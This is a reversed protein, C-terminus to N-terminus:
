AAYAYSISRRASRDAQMRMQAADLLKELTEGDKGIQAHGVSIGLMAEDVSLLSPRCEIVASQIRAAVDAVNEPNANRLMVIFEDGLYHVLTDASRIQSKLMLAIQRITQDARQNEIKDTVQRFISLDALLFTLEYEDAASLQKERGFTERLFRANPLGTLADTMSSNKVEAFLRASKLAESALASVRTLRQIQDDQFKELTRTYIAMAGFVEEGKGLPFVALTNYKELQQSIDKSLGLVYLDLAPDTNAFSKNNALVWGTVGEGPKITCGKFKEAQVGFAYEVVAARDENGLWYFVCTDNEKDFRIVSDMQNAVIEFAQRFDLVGTLNEAIGYLAYSEQSSERSERITKVYAPIAPKDEILGAAPKADRIADTQSVEIPKFVKADEKMRAIQKEFEPLNEIFLDVLAADFAGNRDDQLLKIAQERTMGKRYQRDERVADFCDVVSLLRATLPINEGKLGEPYGKGDWREHHYHVIPVLPYPFQIQNLIQAGVSTHQKMKDFEFATLKGPKNIIYDPVAIKGIDHLLAGAHLAKIDLESLNLLRAMGEAYIQVRRVHDHTIQDKADVATAFAELTRQHLKDMEESHKRAAEINKLYPLAIGYAGGILPITLLVAGFGFYHVLANVIAAMLVGSLSTVIVWSTEKFWERWIIKENNLGVWVAVLSINMAGQLVAFCFLGLGYFWFTYSNHALHNLPGFTLKIILTSLFLPIGILGINFAHVLQRKVFSPAVQRDIGSVSESFTVVAALLLAEERGTLLVALFIFTDSVTINELSGFVRLTTARSLVLAFITLGLWQWNFPPSFIHWIAYGTIGIGLSSVLWKYYKPYNNNQESNM